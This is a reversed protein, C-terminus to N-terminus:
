LQEIELEDSTIPAVDEAPTDFPIVLFTIRKLLELNMGYLRFCLLAHVGSVALM